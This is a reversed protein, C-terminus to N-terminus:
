KVHNESASTTSLHLGDGHPLLAIQMSPTHEQMSSCCPSGYTPQRGSHTSLVSQGRSLAHTLFLHVSGHKLVQAEFAIQSTM